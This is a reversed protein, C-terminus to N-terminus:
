IQEADGQPPHQGILGLRYLYDTSYFVQHINFNELFRSIRSDSAESFRNLLELVNNGLAANPGYGLTVNGETNWGGCSVKLIGDFLHPSGAGQQAILADREPETYRDAKYFFVFGRPPEMDTDIMDGMRASCRAFHGWYANFNEYMGRKGSAPKEINLPFGTEELMENAQRSFAQNIEECQFYYDSNYYLFNTRGPTGYQKGLEQGEQDNANFASSISRMKFKSHVDSVVKAFHEMDEKSAIGEKEEFDRVKQVVENFKQTISEVPAKGAYYDEFLSDIEDEIRFDKSLDIYAWFRNGETRLDLGFKKGENSITISDQTNKANAELLGNSNGISEGESRINITGLPTGQIGEIM